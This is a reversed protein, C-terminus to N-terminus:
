TLEAKMTVTGDKEEVPRFGFREYLKTMGKEASLSVATHGQQRARDLLAEMLQGGLGGGRRSPVVAITLEPTQEDVFGFGPASAPFLRYWAAGIPGAEWAVLGADGPRGWNNVYRAVPLDPDENLRWHYAHKLMDRLFRVDQPGAQRIMCLTQLFDASGADRYAHLPVIVLPGLEAVAQPSAQETAARQSETRSTHAQRSREDL